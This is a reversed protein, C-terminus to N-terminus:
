QVQCLHAGRFGAKADSSEEHKQGRDRVEVADADGHERGVYLAIEAQALLLHTQHEAGEGDRVGAELQRARPPALADARPPDQGPNHDPPRAERHRRGRRPVIGAQEDDTEQEARALRARPRVRRQRERLPDRQLLPSARLAEEKGRRVERSADRGQQNGRQKGPQGPAADEQNEPHDPEEPRGRPKAPEAVFRALVFRDVGGFGLQDLGLAPDHM